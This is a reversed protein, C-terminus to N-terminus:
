TSSIYIILFSLNLALVQLAVPVPLSRNFKLNLKFNFKVNLNFKFIERVIMTLKFNHKLNASLSPSAATVGHSGTGSVTGTAGSDAQKPSETLAAAVPLAM